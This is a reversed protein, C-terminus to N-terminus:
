IKYIEKGNVFLYSKDGNHHLSLCFKTKAKSFNISFKKETSGFSGNIDFTPGRGLVLFDNKQNDTHSSSSNNVGFIIVNRASDNNLSGSGKGDFVIGYM